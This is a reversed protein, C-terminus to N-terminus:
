FPPAKSAERRLTAIKETAAITPARPAIGCSAEALRSAGSEVAESLAPLARVMYTIM